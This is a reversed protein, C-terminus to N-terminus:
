IDWAQSDCLHSLAAAEKSCMQSAQRQKMGASLRCKPQLVDEGLWAVDAPLWRSLPVTSSVERAGYCCERFKVEGDRPCGQSAEPASCASGEQAQM